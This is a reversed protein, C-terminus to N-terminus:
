YVAAALGVLIKKTEKNKIAENLVAQFKAPKPPYLM